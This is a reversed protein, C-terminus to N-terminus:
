NIGQSLIYLGQGCWCPHKQFWVKKTGRGCWCVVMKRWPFGCCGGRAIYHTHWFLLHWSWFFVVTVLLLVSFFELGFFVLPSAPRIIKLNNQTYLCFLLTVAVQLVPTCFWSFEVFLPFIPFNPTTDTLIRHRVLAKDLLCLASIAFGEM